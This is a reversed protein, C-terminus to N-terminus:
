ELAIANNKNIKELIKHAVEMALYGDIESVIVPKGTEISNIFASLEEKIANTEM